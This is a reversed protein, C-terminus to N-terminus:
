VKFQFEPTYHTILKTSTFKSSPSCSDKQKGALTEVWMWTVHHMRLSFGSVSVPVIVLTFSAARRSQVWTWQCFWNDRHDELVLFSGLFYSSKLYMTYIYLHPFEMWPSKLHPQLNVKSLMLSNWWYTHAEDPSVLTKNKQLHRM